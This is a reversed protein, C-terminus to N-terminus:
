LVSNRLHITFTVTERYRGDNPALFSSGTDGTVSFAEGLPYLTNLAASADRPAASGTRSRLVMGIRVSRVRDWNKNTEKKDGSVVLQDARLYREPLSNPVGSPATTPTVQDVGYLVQFNEVGDVIPLATWAGTLPDPRECYLTSEGTTPSLKVYLANITLDGSKTPASAPVGMCDVIAEDVVSSVSTASPDNLKARNGQFRVVLMDSGNVGRGSSPVTNTTGIALSQSFTANNFGKINPETDDSNATNFLQSVGKSIAYENDLYGGQVILRRMVTAAFRGNDRLESGADVAFFGQRALVLTSVAAIAVLLSLAMAVMLEVLTFGM